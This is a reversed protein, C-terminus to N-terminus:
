CHLLIVIFLDLSLRSCLADIRKDDALTGRCHLVSQLTTMPIVGDVLLAIRDLQELQDPITHVLFNDGTLRDM